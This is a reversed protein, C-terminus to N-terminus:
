MAFLLKRCFGIVGAMVSFVFQQWLEAVHLKPSM